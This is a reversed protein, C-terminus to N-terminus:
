AYTVQSRSRRRTAAGVLGFGGILMAWTAPEPVVANTLGIRIQRVEQIGGGVTTFAVNRISQGNIAQFGVFNSGNGLPKSFNNVSTASGGFLNFEVNNFTSNDQMGFSFGNLPITDNPNPTGGNLDGSISAQGGSARLIAGGTGTFLVRSNAQNNLFGDVVNGSTIGQNFLVNFGQIASADVQVIDASAPAAMISGFALASAILLKKMLVGKVDGLEPV